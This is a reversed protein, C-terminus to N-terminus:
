IHLSVFVYFPNGFVSQIHSVVCEKVSYMAYGRNVNQMNQYRQVKNINPSHIHGVTGKKICLLSYVKSVIVNYHCTNQMNFVVQIISSTM